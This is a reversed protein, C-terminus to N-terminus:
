ALPHPELPGSLDRGSQLWLEAFDARGDPDSDYGFTIPILRPDLVRVVHVPLAVPMPYRYVAAGAPLGEVPAASVDAFDITPGSCMWDLRSRWGASTYLGAHDLPTRVLEPDDLPSLPSTAQGVAEILAHRLAAVPDHAASCGFGVRADTDTRVLIVPVGTPSPLTLVTVQAHERLTALIEREAFPISSAAIQRPPRTGARARCRQFADREVAELWASRIATPLSPHSAVGSSSAASPHFWSPWQSLRGVVLCAPLWIREGNCEGPV